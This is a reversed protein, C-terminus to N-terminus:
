HDKKKKMKKVRKFLSNKKKKTLFTVAYSLLSTFSCDFL